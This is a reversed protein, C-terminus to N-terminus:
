CQKLYDQYTMTLGTKFDVEPRWKFQECLTKDLSKHPMGDPKSSDWLIQGSYGTVAAIMSGLEKISVIEGGCLNIPEVGEYHELFYLMGKAADDVYLFERTPEGSGWLTVESKGDLKAKHFRNILAPIVHGREDNFHDGPGYLSTPVLTLYKCDYQRAYYETLKTAAVKAIAYAENTPEFAGTLLSKEQIPQEALRPYFCNSALNLFREVGLEASSCILNTAIMLNDYLFEVPQTRNAEIGGVKAAAGIIVNPKTNAIFDKVDSQSRLDLSEKDATIIEVDLTSLAKTLAKGVLGKHGTVFVKKNNLDFIKSM